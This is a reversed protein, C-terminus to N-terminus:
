RCPKQGCDLACLYGRGVWLTVKDTAALAEEWPPPLITRKTAIILVPLPLCRRNEAVASIISRM